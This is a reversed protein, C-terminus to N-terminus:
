FYENENDISGIFKGNTVNLTTLVVVFCRTFYKVLFQHAGNSKQLCCKDVM